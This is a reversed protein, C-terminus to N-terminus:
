SNHRYVAVPTKYYQDLRVKVVERKSSSNHVMYPIGNVVESVIGVHGYGAKGSRTFFVIDGPKYNIKGKLPKYGNSYVKVFGNKELQRALSNCEASYINELGPVNKLAQSVAHACALNGYDLSAQRYRNGVISNASDAIKNSKTPTSWLYTLPKSINSSFWNGVHSILSQTKLSIFNIISDDGLVKGAKSSDMEYYNLYNAIFDKLEKQVRADPYKNVLSIAIDYNGSVVLEQIFSKFMSNKYIAVPTQNIVKAASVFDNEDLLEIMLDRFYASRLNIDQITNIQAIIQDINNSNTFINFTEVHNQNYLNLGNLKISDNSILTNNTNENILSHNLGKLIPQSSNNYNNFNNGINM